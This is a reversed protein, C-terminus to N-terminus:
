LDAATPPGVAAAQPPTRRLRRLAADRSMPGPDAFGAAPGTGQGFQGGATAAAPQDALGPAAAAPRQPRHLMRKAIELNGRVAARRVRPHPRDLAARSRRVVQRLLANRGQPDGSPEALLRRLTAASWTADRLTQSGQAAASGALVLLALAAAPGNRRLPATLCVLAVLLGLVVPWPRSRTDAPGALLAALDPRALAASLDVPTTGATLHVGDAGAWAALRDDDRVVAAPLDPLDTPAAGGVGLVLRRGPPAPLPWGDGDGALVVLSPEASAVLAVAGAPDSGPALGGRNLARLARRLLRHDATPPAAVEASGAFRVLGVPRGPLADLLSDLTATAVAHRDPVADIATMSASVDVALWVVPVVGADDRPVWSAAALLGACALAVRPLRQRPALVCVAAAAVAAAATM